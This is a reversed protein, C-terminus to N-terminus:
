LMAAGFDPTVRLTTTSESPRMAMSVRSTQRLPIRVCPATPPGNVDVGYRGTQGQEAARKTWGVWTFTLAVFVHYATNFWSVVAHGVWALFVSETQLTMWCTLVGVPLCWLDRRQGQPLTHGLLAHHQHGRGAVHGIAVGHSVAFLRSVHIRLRGLLVDVGLASWGLTSASWVKAEIQPYNKAEEKGLVTMSLVLTSVMLASWAMAHTPWQSPWAVGLDELSFGWQAM